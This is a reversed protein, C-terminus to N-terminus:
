RLECAYDNVTEEWGQKPNTDELTRSGRGVIVCGQDKMYNRRGFPRGHNSCFFFALARESESLDSSNLARTSLM